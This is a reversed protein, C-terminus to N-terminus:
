PPTLGELRRRFALVAESIVDVVSSNCSSDIVDFVRCIGSRHGVHAWTLGGSQCRGRVTITKVGGEDQYASVSLELQYITAFFWLKAVTHGTDGLRGPPTKGRNRRAGERQSM